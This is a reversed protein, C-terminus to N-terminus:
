PQTGPKSAVPMVSIGAIWLTGALKNDFLRSPPRILRVVVFHTQPSAVFDADVPTWDHSGTFNKTVVNVAGAHNPDSISFRPGSDTTIAETRMLAHFHYAQGPDVPVFEYPGALDLNSGGNFDLRLARGDAQSPAAEFLLYVGPAPAWRWGLGGGSLDAEFDGDWMVSRSAHHGPLAASSIVQSWVRRADDSRDEAILEDILPFTSSLPVQEKSDAVRKWLSLAADCQHIGAFYDIAQFYVSDNPPLLRDIIQNANGTARWARSIALPLLSPDAQVARRLQAYAPAYDARRLLFNGYYFAVEASDPYVTQAHVFADHAEVDNGSAEEASALDLWDHASHPDERLARRYADIAGPLDSDALKWQRLHGLNDWAAADSPILKVGREVLRENQSNIWRNEIWLEIAQFILVAGILACGALMLVRHRANALSIEM